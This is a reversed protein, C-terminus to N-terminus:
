PAVKSLLELLVDREARTLNKAIAGEFKLVADRYRAHDTLGKRTLKLSYTRRDGAAARRVLGLRELEDIVKVVSPTAINLLAGLGAQSIGPNAAVISLAALRAPSLEGNLYQVLVDDCRVQARKITYALSQALLGSLKYQFETIGNVENSSNSAEVANDIVKLNAKSARRKDLM